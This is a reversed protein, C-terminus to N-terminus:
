NQQLTLTADVFDTVMTNSLDILESGTLLTRDLFAQPTEGFNATQTQFGSGIDDIFSLPDTFDTLALPDFTRQGFGEEAFLKQIRKLEAEYDETQEKTKELISELKSQQIVGTINKAADTLALIKDISSLSNISSAINDFNFGGANTGLSIALSAVIGLIQGLKEGFVETAGISILQTVLIAAIANAAAGIAVALLGNFGLAAGVGAASGLIGGGTFALVGGAGGTAVSIVAVVAIVVVALIFKFFGRQFFKRKVVEYSNFVLLYSERSVDAAKIASMAKLTPEHLPIIFGSEEDDDLAEEATIDVSKGEYILNKHLLGDVIIEIYELDTIQKRIVIGSVSNINTVQENMFDFEIAQHFTNGKGIFIDGKSAGQGLLGTKRESSISSWTISMDLVGLSNNPLTLHVNAVRPSFGTTAGNVGLIQGPNESSTLASTNLLGREGWERAHRGLINNENEFDQYAGVNSQNNGALRNFFTFIYDKEAIDTTNLTVGFVLYCYDIDEVSENNDVETITENIDTGLARKWATEIIDKHQRAPSGSEFVSHNDVRIPIFPYFERTDAGDTLMVRRNDLEENGSGMEYIYVKTPETIGAKTVSYYIVMIDASSNYNEVIFSDNTIPLNQYLTGEPYQIWITDNQPDVDAAWDLTALSPRNEYVWREAYYSEDANDIFAEIINIEYLSDNNFLDQHIQQAVVEYDIDETFSIAARPMGIDFNNKAWRFFSKQNARPGSNIGGVISEAFSDSGSIVAGAVVEQIFNARDSGDDIIKDVTSSVYVKRKTCFLGM